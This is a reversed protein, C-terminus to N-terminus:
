GQMTSPLDGNSPVKPLAQSLYRVALPTLRGDTTVYEGPELDHLRFPLYQGWSRDQCPQENPEEPPGGCPWGYCYHLVGQTPDMVESSVTGSREGDSGPRLGHACISWGTGALTAHDRFCQALYAVDIEGKGKEMLHLIRRLRVTSSGNQEVARAIAAMKPSVWHNTRGVFGSATHTEVHLSRTSVEVLAIAGSADALLFNGHIARPYHELLGIAEEVSGAHSLLLRGFQSYPLGFANQSTPEHRPDPSASSWTYAFGRANVGRTHMGDFHAVEKGNRSVIQTAIFRAGESPEVVLLRTRIKFPDDSTGGVLPLGDRTVSGTAGALTCHGENGLRWRDLITM